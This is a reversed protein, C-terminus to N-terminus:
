SALRLPKKSPEGQSSQNNGQSSIVAFIADLKASMENSAALSENLKDALEGGNLLDDDSEPLANRDVCAEIFRILESTATASSETCLNKFAGWLEPKINFTALTTETKRKSSGM